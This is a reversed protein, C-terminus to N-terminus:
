FISYKEISVPLCTMHLLLSEVQHSDEIRRKGWSFDWLPIVCCLTRSAETRASTKNTNKKRMRPGDFHAFMYTWRRGVGYSTQTSRYARTQVMFHLFLFFFFRNRTRRQQGERWKSHTALLMSELYCITRKIEKEEATYATYINIYAMPRRALVRSSYFTSLNTGTSVGCQLSSSPVDKKREGGM